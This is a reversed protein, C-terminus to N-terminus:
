PKNLNSQQSPDINRPQDDTPIGCSGLLPLTLVLVILLMTRFRIPNNIMLTSMVQQHQTLQYNLSLDHVAFEMWAIKLGFEAV